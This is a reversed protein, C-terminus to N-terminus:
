LDARTMFRTIGSPSAQSQAAETTLAFGTAEAMKAGAVALGSHLEVRRGDREIEAGYGATMELVGAARITFSAGDEALSVEPEAGRVMGPALGLWIAGLATVFACPPKRTM